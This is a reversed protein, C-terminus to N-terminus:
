LTLSSPFCLLGSHRDTRNTTLWTAWDIYQRAVPQVVPRDLDSQRCIRFSKKELRQIWVPESARGAEQVIPVPPGKGLTLASGPRSASWEGGDLAATSFSYSSYMGVWAGGHRTTSCSWSKHYGTMHLRCVAFELFTTLIFYVHDHWLMPQKNIATKKGYFGPKSGLNTWTSNTTSFTVNPCTKRRTRGDTGTLIMGGSNWIWEHTLQPNPLPGTLPRLKVSFYDWGM